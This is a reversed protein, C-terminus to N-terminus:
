EPEGVRSVLVEGGFSELRTFRLDQLNEETWRQALERSAEAEHAHAFTSLTMVIREGCDIFHYSCFGPQARVQEAFGEDIREKLDSLSGEILRYRRVSVFM